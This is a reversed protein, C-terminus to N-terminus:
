SHPIRGGSPSVRRTQHDANAPAEQTATPPTRCRAAWSRLGGMTIQQNTEPDIGEEVRAVTNFWYEQDKVAGRTLSLLALEIDSDWCAESLPTM